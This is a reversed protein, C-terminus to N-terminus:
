NGSEQDTADLGIREYREKLFELAQQEAVQEEEAWPVYTRVLFAEGDESVHGVFNYYRSLGNVIPDVYWRFKWLEGDGMVEVFLSREALEEQYHNRIM